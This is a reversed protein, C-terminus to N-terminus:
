IILPSNFLFFDHLLGSPSLLFLSFFNRDCIYKLHKPKDLSNAYLLMTKQKKKKNTM